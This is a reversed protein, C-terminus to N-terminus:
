EDGGNSDGPLPPLGELWSEVAQNFAAPRSIHSLHGTGPIPVYRSNPLRDAIDLAWSVPCYVDRPGKVVLAPVQVAWLERRLDLGTLLEVRAASVTGPVTRPGTQLAYEVVADRGPSDDYIWVGLPAFVERALARSLSTPLYRTAGQALPILGTRNLGVHEYSLHAIPNILVIGRLGEPHRAALRMAIASGLSQGIVVYPGPDLHDVLELVDDVFRDFDHEPAVRARLDAAIVRYDRAFHPLQYRFTEKPGDAGPVWVLAPGEGADIYEVREGDSLTFERIPFPTGSADRVPPRVLSANRRVMAKWYAVAAVGTAVGAAFRKLFGM